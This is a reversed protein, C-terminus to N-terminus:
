DCCLNDCLPVSITTIQVLMVQTKEVDCYLNIISDLIEPDCQESLICEVSCDGSDGLGEEIWM